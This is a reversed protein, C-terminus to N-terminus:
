SECRNTALLRNLRERVTREAKQYCQREYEVKLRAWQEPDITKLDARRFICDPASQPVREAPDPRCVSMEAQKPLGSADQIPEPASNQTCGALCIAIAVVAPAPLVGAAPTRCATRWLALDDIGAM